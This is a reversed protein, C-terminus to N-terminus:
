GKKQINTLAVKTSAEYTKDFRRAFPQYLYTQTSIGAMRFEFIEQFFNERFSKTAKNSFSSIAQLWDNLLRETSKLTGKTQIPYLPVLFSSSILLSYKKLM